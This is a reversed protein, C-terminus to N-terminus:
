VIETVVADCCASLCRQSLLRGSNGEAPAAPQSAGNGAAAPQSAGGGADVSVASASAQAQRSAGASAHSDRNDWGAMEVGAKGLRCNGIQPRRNYSEISSYSYLFINVTM